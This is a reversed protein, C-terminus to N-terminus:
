FEKNCTVSVDGVLERVPPNKKCINVQISKIRDNLQHIEDALDQAITELLRTPIKMRKSILEFVLGYDVTQELETIRDNSNITLSVNVEFQNGLAREEEHIGHFAFFVLNHLHITIM